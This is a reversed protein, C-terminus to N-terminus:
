KDLLARLFANHVYKCVRAPFYLVFVIGDISTITHFIAMVLKYTSICLWRIARIPWFVSYAFVKDQPLEYTVGYILISFVIGFIWVILGFIVTAM